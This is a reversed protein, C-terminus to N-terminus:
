EAPRHLHRHHPANAYHDALVDTGGFDHELDRWVTHIHNADNQTNDYEVLFTPGHIRYYHPEGAAAGGAWAFTISEYGKLQIHEMEAEAIDPRMRAAYFGVLQVMANRQEPSMEGYSLGAPKGVEARRSAETVIDAPAEKQIVVRARDKETFRNLLERGLVEEGALVRM